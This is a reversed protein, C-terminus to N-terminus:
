VQVEAELNAIQEDVFMDLDTETAKPAPLKSLQAKIDVRPVSHMSSTFGSAISSKEWAEHGGLVDMNLRM